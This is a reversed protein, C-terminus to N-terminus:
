GTLGISLAEHNNLANNYHNVRLTILDDTNDERLLVTVFVFVLGYPSLM